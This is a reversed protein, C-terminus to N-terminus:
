KYFRKRIKNVIYDIVSKSINRIVLSNEPLWAAYPGFTYYFKIFLRGFLSNQLVNDRFDRLLEVNPHYADQYTATAVYCSSKNNGNQATDMKDSMWKRTGEMISVITIPDLNAFMLTDLGVCNIFERTVNNFNEVNNLYQNFRSKLEPYNNGYGFRDQEFAVKLKQFILNMIDSVENYNKSNAAELCIYYAIFAKAYIFEKLINEEYSSGNCSNHIKVSGPDSTTFILKALITSAEDFTM